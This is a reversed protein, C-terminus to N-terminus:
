MGGQFDPLIDAIPLGKKIVRIAPKLIDKSIDYTHIKGKRSCYLLTGNLFIPEVSKIPLPLRTAYMVWKGKVNQYLRMINIFDQNYIDLVMFGYKRLVFVHKDRILASIFKTDSTVVIHRENQLTVETVYDISEKTIVVLSEENFKQYQVIKISKYVLVGKNNYVLVSDGEEMVFM